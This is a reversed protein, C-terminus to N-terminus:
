AAALVKCRRSVRPRKAKCKEHPLIDVSKVNKLFSFDTISDFASPLAKRLINGAGNIDANIVMGTHTRYLGRSKRAGSFTVDDAGKDSYVPMFDLVTLDAKSTYSEEQKIVIIGAHEAKYKIMGQLIYFPIQVFNQNNVTGLGTEQKWGKNIGMVITGIHNRVCTDVISRSIKHMADRLTDMRKRSITDLQASKFQGDKAKLTDKGSMLISKLEATRKNYWQNESKIFGGKYLLALGNNSVLAVTNNVGFDLGCSYSGPSKVDEEKTDFTCLLLLKGYYPKVKVESLRSNAPIYIGNVAAKTKPFKMYDQKRGPYIVCDQNTFTITNLTKDEKKYNPMKPRGTFSSPDKNYSKVAKIWGKFDSVAQKLVCQATQMPLGAFFDPNNTARMLKELFFYSIFAKPKVLHYTSATLSIEDMVQRENASLKEKKRATFNQRIRFLAANYLRRSLEMLPCAYNFFEKNKSSSLVTRTTTKM